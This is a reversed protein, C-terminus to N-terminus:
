KPTQPERLMCVTRYVAGEEGGYKGAHIDIHDVEKWGHRIYLPLGKPTADIWVPLGEADAQDLGWKLLKSAIGRRHHKPETALVSMYWYKKVGQMHSERKEAMSGFFFELLEVNAGPSGNWWGLQEKEVGEDFLVWKGVAIIEGTLTDVAKTFKRGKTNVASDRSKEAREVQRSREREMGETDDQGKPKNFLLASIRDDEFAATMIEATRIFDEVSSYDLLSVEINWSPDPVKSPIGPDPIPYKMCVIVQRRAILATPLDIATEGVIQFGHKIYLPVGHPSAMLFVPVNLSRAYSIGWKMILSGAGRRLHDPHTVVSVVDPIM